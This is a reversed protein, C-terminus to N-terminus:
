DQVLGKYTRKKTMYLDKTPGKELGLYTKQLNKKRIRPLDNKPEKRTKYLDNEKAKLARISSKVNCIKHTPQTPNLNFTKKKTM